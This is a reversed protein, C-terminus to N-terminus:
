QDGLNMEIVLFNPNEINLNHGKFENELNPYEYIFEKLNCMIPYNNNSCSFSISSFKVIYPTKNGIVKM